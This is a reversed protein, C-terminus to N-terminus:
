AGFEKRLAQALEGSFRDGFLSRASAAVSASLAPAAPRRRNCPYGFAGEQVSLVPPRSTTLSLPWLVCSEPKTRLPDLGRDLAASHLACLIRGEADQYALRCLGDEGRALAYVDPGLRRFLERADSDRLHAVHRAAAPLLGAIREREGDELFVDYDACCCGSKRCLNPDCQHELEALAPLDVLLDGVRVLRDAWDAHLPQM